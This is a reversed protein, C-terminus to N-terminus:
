KRPGNSYATRVAIWRHRLGDYLTPADTEKMLVVATQVSGASPHQRRHTGKNITEASVANIFYRLTLDFTMSTLSMSLANSKPGAPLRELSHNRTALGTSIGPM